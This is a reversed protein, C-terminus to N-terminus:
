NIADVNTKLKSMEYIEEGEKWVALHRNNLATVTGHMNVSFLLFRNIHAM